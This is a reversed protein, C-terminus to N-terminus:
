PPPSLQVDIVNGAEDGALGEVPALKLLDTVRGILGETFLFGRVLEEDHGPTRMVMTLPKGSTRIELPAEVALQDRAEDQGDGRVRTVARESIERRENM